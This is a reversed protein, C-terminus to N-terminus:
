AGLVAGEEFLQALATADRVVFADEFLTELEEPTQAGPGMGSFSTGPARGTEGLFTTNRPGTPRAYSPGILAYALSRASSRIESRAPWPWSTTVKQFPTVSTM